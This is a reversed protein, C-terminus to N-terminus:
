VSLARSALLLATGMLLLAVSVQLQLQLDAGTRVLGASGSSPAPAPQGVPGGASPQPAVVGGAASGRTAPQFPDKAQASATPAALLCTLAVVMAALLARM